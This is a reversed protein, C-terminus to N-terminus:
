ITTSTKNIKQQYACYCSREKDSGKYGNYKDMCQEYSGCDDFHSECNVDYMRYEPLQLRWEDCNFGSKSSKNLNTQRQTKDDDKKSSQLFSAELFSTFALAILMFKYFIM